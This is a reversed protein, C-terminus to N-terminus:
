DTFIQRIQTMQTRNNLNMFFSKVLNMTGLM